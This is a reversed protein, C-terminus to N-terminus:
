RVVELTWTMDTGDLPLSWGRVQTRYTTLDPDDYTVVDFHGAVPVPGSTLEVTTTLQRDASVIQDGAAVLAAHDTVDLYEVRPLRGRQAIGTPGDDVNEVVYLGAGDVPEADARKWVFRWVNVADDGLEEVRRREESVINTRDDGLDFTWEPARTAPHAYPHSRFYGDQDVWLGVYGVARLLDNAADLWSARGVSWVFDDHLTTAEATADLRVRSGGGGAAIIDRVAQLVPSGAWVVHTDELRHRLLSLKDVGEVDWVPESDGLVYEPKSIRYVGLRFRATTGTLQDTVDLYPRLRDAAWDLERTLQLRCTGHVDAYNRHEVEGSVLDASIDQVFADSADLLDLGAAVEIAPSTLVARVEDDTLHDRPPATLRQM